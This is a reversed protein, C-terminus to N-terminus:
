LNQDFPYQKKESNINLVNDFPNPYVHHEESTGTFSIGTDDFTNYFVYNGINSDWNTIAMDPYLSMQYEIEASSGPPLNEHLTIWDEGEVYSYALDENSENKVSLISETNATPLTIVSVPYDFANSYNFSETIMHSKDLDSLEIAEVVSSTNSTYIIDAYGSEQEERAHVPKWWGGYFLTNVMTGSTESFGTVIGSGTGFPESTWAPETSAPFSGFDYRKVRGEGGLQDNGTMVAFPIFDSGSPFVGIEVSNVYNDEDSSSWSPSNSINGEDDALYIYNPTAECAFFADLFGNQDFDGFAVDLSGMEIDSEWKNDNSFSGEDNYFIKGHDLLSSYPEGATTLLDLDGDGNADGLMCSFTYFPESVFTPTAELENGTNYYVKVKGPESFGAHGIYVSVAVDIDGDQDVDGCSLHGHYDTDESEWDPSANFNGLGDNYYVVLSQISIDNGNAVVMDKYGDGNIDALGLGTAVHSLPDSEWDPNENYYVQANLTVGFFFLTILIYLKM